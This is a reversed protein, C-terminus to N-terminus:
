PYAVYRIFPRITVNSFNLTFGDQDYSVITARCMIAGTNDLLDVVNNSTAGRFTTGVGSITNCIPAQGPIAVADSQFMQTGSPAIAQFDIRRPRFGVGTTAQNGTAVPAQIQNVKQFQSAHGMNNATYSDTSQKGAAFHITGLRGGLLVENEEIQVYTAGDGTGGVVIAYAQTQTGQNDFIRNNSIKIRDPQNPIALTCVVAIGSGATFQVPDQGNSSITNDSITVNKADVLSIGDSECFEVTNGTIIVNAAGCEIGSASINKMTSATITNNTIKIDNVTYNIFITSEKCSKFRNGDILMHNAMGYLASWEMFEFTSGTVRVHESQTLDGSKDIWLAAGGEVTVNPKGTKTFYCDEVNVYRVGGLSLGMYSSNQFSCNRILGRKLKGFSLLSTARGANNNGDFIINEVTIQEDTLVDKVGSVNKNTLMDSGIPLSASAKFIVQGFGILRVKSKITMKSSIIYTGPSVVVTGGGASSAADMAAQIYPDDDKAGDGKAGYVKVNYIIDGWIDNNVNGNAAKRQSEIVESVKMIKGGRNKKFKLRNQIKIQLKM